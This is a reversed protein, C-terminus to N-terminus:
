AETPPNTKNTPEDQDAEELWHYTWDSPLGLHAKLKNLSEIQEEKMREIEKVEEESLEAKKAEYMHLGAEFARELQILVRLGQYASQGDLYARQAAQREAIKEQRKSM